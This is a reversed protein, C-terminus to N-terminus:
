SINASKENIWKKRCQQIIWLGIMNRLYHYKGGFGGENGFKKEFGEKSVIPRGSIIGVMAWTGCNLYAWNKLSNERSVPIATIESTTDYCPLAVPIVPCEIEDCIIGSIKGIIKCPATVDTFIHRPLELKKIIHEDWKMERQNLLQTLTANSFECIIEGTLFFNFLDGLLLLHRANELIPSKNKKLYYLQFLTNIEIIQAQTREYLEWESFIKKVEESLGVTRRDRYHVPNSLLTGTRDLLGFDCGWTEVGMGSIERYQKAAISIGNKLESFLRLFDWYFTNGLFVPRNEFRHIENLILKKGDFEGVIARGNSAGYDVALFNETAGM